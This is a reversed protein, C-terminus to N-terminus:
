LSNILNAEQNCVIFVSIFFKCITKNETEFLDLSGKSESAANVDGTISADFLCTFSTAGCTALAKEKLATNNAFLTDITDFFLPVFTPDYDPDPLTFM